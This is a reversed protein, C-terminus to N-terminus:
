ADKDRAGVLAELLAMHTRRAVHSNWGNGLAKWEALLAALKTRDAESINM